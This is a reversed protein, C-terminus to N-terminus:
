KEGTFVPMETDFRASNAGEDTRQHLDRHCSFSGLSNIEM